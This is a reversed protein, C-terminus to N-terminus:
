RSKEHTSVTHVLSEPVAEGALILAGAQAIRERLETIAEISRYAFHPTLICNELARLPHDAPLPEPATVDIGAGAITGNRLAVVLDDTDVLGGRSVNLLHATPKMQEFKKRNMVGRTNETLPIHLSVCDSQALFSAQDVVRVATIDPPLERESATYILNMGLATARRALAQATRGMGWLGLTKGRLRHPMHHPMAWGGARVTELQQPLQRFLSLMLVLAQDAVEDVCYDPVNYVPIGQASACAVDINDVGVGYRLIARTASAAQIVPASLTAFCVVILAAEPALRLLTEEDSSPAVVIRHGSKELWAKEIALGDWDIDTILVFGKHAEDVSLPSM